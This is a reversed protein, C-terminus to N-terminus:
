IKEEASLKKAKKTNATPMTTTETTTKTVTTMKTKKPLVNIRKVNLKDQAPTAQPPLSFRIRKKAKKLLQHTVKGKMPSTVHGLVTRCIPCTHNVPRFSPVCFPRFCCNMAGGFCFLLFSTFSVTLKSEPSIVTRVTHRCFRCVVIIHQENYNIDSSLPKHKDCEALSDFELELSSSSDDVFPSPSDSFEKLTPYVRTEILRM